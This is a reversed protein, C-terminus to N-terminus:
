NKIFSIPITEEETKLSGSYSGNSLQSVDIQIVSTENVKMKYVARGLNDYIILNGEHIVKGLKVTLNGSAIPNPYVYTQLTEALNVVVVESYYKGGNIDTQLVRYYNKGTNPTNDTFTYSAGSSSGSANVKGISSFHTADTSREITFGANESESFTSWKLVITRGSAFGAFKLGTVPLAGSQEFQLIWQYANKNQLYSFTMTYDYMELAPSNHSNTGPLITLIPVITPPPTSNIISNYWDTNLRKFIGPDSPVSADNENAMMWAEVHSDSIVQGQAASAALPAASAVMIAAIKDANAKGSGIYDLAYGGGSSNGTLYVKNTNIRYHGTAYTLMDNIDQVESHGNYYPEYNFWPVLLIFEVQEGNVTFSTPFNNDNWTKWPLLGWGDNVLVNISQTGSGLHYAFGFGHMYIILPYKKTPNTAYSAPLYEYFGLINSGVTINNKLTKTQSFTTGSVLCSLLLISRKFNLWKM